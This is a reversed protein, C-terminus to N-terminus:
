SRVNMYTRLRYDTAARICLCLWDQPALLIMPCPGDQHAIRILQCFVYQEYFNRACRTTLIFFINYNQASKSSDAM